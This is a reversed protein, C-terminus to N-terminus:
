SAARARQQLRRCRCSLEDWGPEIALMVLPLAAARRTGSRSSPRPMWLLSAATMRVETAGPQFTTRRHLTATRSAPSSSSSAPPPVDDPFFLFYPFYTIYDNGAPGAGGV